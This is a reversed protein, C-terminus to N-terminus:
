WLCSERQALTQLRDDESWRGLCSLLGKQLRLSFGELALGKDGLLMGPVMVTLWARGSARWFPVKGFGGFGWVAFGSSLWPGLLFFDPPMVSKALFHTRGSMWREEAKITNSQGELGRDSWRHLPPSLVECLPWLRSKLGSSFDKRPWGSLSQVRKGLASSPLLARVRDM